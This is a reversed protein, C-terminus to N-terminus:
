FIFDLSLNLININRALKANPNKVYDYTYLGSTGTPLYVRQYEFKIDTFRNFDYILGLINSTQAGYLVSKIGNNWLQSYTYTVMFPELIRYGLTAYYADNNLIKKQLISSQVLAANLSAASIGKTKAAVEAAERATAIEGKDIQSGAHLYESYVLFKRWEVKIGASFYEVFLRDIHFNTDKLAVLSRIYCLRILTHTDVFSLGAGRIDYAKLDINNIRPGAERKVTENIAGGFVSFLTHYGLMDWEYNLRGGYFRQVRDLSYLEMPPRVWPYLRGIGSYDSIISIPLKLKGVQLSMGRIQSPYYSAIAWDIEFDRATSKFQSLYQAAIDWESNLRKSVNLGFASDFVFNIRKQISKMSVSNDGKTVGSTMFGHIDVPMNDDLFESYAFNSLSLFFIYFGFIWCNKIM